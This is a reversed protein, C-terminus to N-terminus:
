AGRDKREMELREPNAPHEDMVKLLLPRLYPYYASDARLCATLFAEMFSGVKPALPHLMANVYDLEDPYNQIISM